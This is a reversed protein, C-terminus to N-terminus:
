SEGERKLASVCRLASYLDDTERSTTKWCKVSVSENESQSNAGSYSNFKTSRTCNAVKGTFQFRPLEASGTLVCQAHNLVHVNRQASM